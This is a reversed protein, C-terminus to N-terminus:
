TGDGDIWLATIASGDIPLLLTGEYALLEDDRPMPERRRRDLAACCGLITAGGITVGGALRELELAPAYVPFGRARLSAELTATPCTLAPDRALGAADIARRAEDSLRDRLDSHISIM